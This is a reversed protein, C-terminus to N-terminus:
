CTKARVGNRSNGRDRGVPDHKAYGLHTSMEEELAAELVRKTLQNLLGNPRGVGGRSKPRRGCSSRLSSSTM